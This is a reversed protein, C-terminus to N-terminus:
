DDLYGRIYTTSIPKSEDLPFGFLTLIDDTGWLEIWELNTVTDKRGWYMLKQRKAAGEDAKEEADIENWDPFDEDFWENSRLSNWGAKSSGTVDFDISSGIHYCKNTDTIKAIKLAEDFIERNPKENKCDYSTLIFDFYQAIGLENLINPLRNDFNSVVGIKPGGGQDRWDRLKSLTYDVDDKIMWGAATNFVENYLLDFLTPMLSDIEEKEVNVLDRTTYYTQKILEYWWDRLSMGTKAGFCPQEKCRKDYAVKFAETFLAPRPLRIKMECVTNLAERYWRGISQSPQILTHMAEYTILLPRDKIMDKKVAVINNSATQWFEDKGKQGKERDYPTVDFDICMLSTIKNNIISNKNYISSSYGLRKNYGIRFANILSLMFAIVLIIRLLM